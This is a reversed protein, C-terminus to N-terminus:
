NIVNTYQIDFHHNSIRVTLYEHNERKLHTEIQTKCSSDDNALTDVAATEQRQEDQRQMKRQRQVEM